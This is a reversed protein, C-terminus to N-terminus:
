VLSKNSHFRFKYSVGDVYVFEKSLKNVIFNLDKSVVVTDGFVGRIDRLENIYGLVSLSKANIVKAKDTALVDLSFSSGDLSPTIVFDVNEVIANDRDLKVEFIRCPYLHNVKVDGFSYYSVNFTGAEVTKEVLSFSKLVEIEDLIEVKGVGAPNLEKLIADEPSTNENSIKLTGGVQYKPTQYRLFLTALFFFFPLITVFLYWKRIIKPLISSLDIIKDEM